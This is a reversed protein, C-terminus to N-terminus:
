TDCSYSYYRAIDSSKFNWSNLVTGLIPIGDQAFREVASLAADRSTERARVVLVVGDALRGLARADPIMLVPPSDIIITDFERRCRNLLNAMRESALADAASPQSGDNPIVRLNEVATAHGFCEAPIEDVDGSALLDLLGPMGTLGFLHHLKPRRTDGDILLTSRGLKAFAIAVNVSFVSKGERPLASSVVIVQPSRVSGEASFMLSLAAGRFSEAFFSPQSHWKMLKPLTGDRRFDLDETRRLMLSQRGEKTCLPDHDIMPISALEPVRLYDAGEGPTKISRDRADLLFALGFGVMLGGTAGLFTILARRPQAPTSPQEAPDV